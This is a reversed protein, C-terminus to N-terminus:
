ITEIWTGETEVEFKAENDYATVYYKASTIIELIKWNYNNM